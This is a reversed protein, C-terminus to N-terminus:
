GSGSLMSPSARLWSHGDWLAQAIRIVHVRVGPVSMSMPRPTYQADRQGDRNNIDDQQHNGTNAGVRQRQEGLGSM